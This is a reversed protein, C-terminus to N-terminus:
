YDLNQNKLQYFTNNKEGVREIIKKELLHEFDRRLTRKSVQPLIRKIQWVQASGKEKLFNLIEKQRSNINLLDEETKKAASNLGAENEQFRSSEKIKIESDREKDELFEIQKEFDSKIKDCKEEIKLIDFYSAWNQWKAIEFYAKLIELNKEVEFIIEEKQSQSVSLFKVPNSSSVVQWILINKLVEDVAERTKYRLPEKKPFFLTLKYIKNAFEVIEEKQM